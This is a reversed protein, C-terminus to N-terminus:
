SPRAAPAPLAAPHHSSKWSRTMACSPRNVQDAYRNYAIVAPHPSCVWPRPMLAEAHPAVMHLTAQQVGGLAVFSNLHGVTGFLGV